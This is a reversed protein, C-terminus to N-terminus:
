PARASRHSRPACRVDAGAHAPSEAALQRGDSCRTVSTPDESAQPLAVAEIPVPTGHASMAEVAGHAGTSPAAAISGLLEIAAATAAPGEAPTAPSEAPGSARPVTDLNLLESPTFTGKVSARASHPASPQAPTFRGLLTFSQPVASGPTFAPRAASGLAPTQASLACMGVVSQRRSEDEEGGLAAPLRSLAGEAGIPEFLPVPPVPPRSDRAAAASSPLEDARILGPTGVAAPLMACPAALDMAVSDFLPAPSEPLMRGGFVDPVSRAGSGSASASGDDRGAAEPAVAASKEPPPTEREDERRWTFVQGGVVCVRPESGVHTPTPGPADVAM